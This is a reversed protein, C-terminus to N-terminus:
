AINLYAENKNYLIVLYVYLKEKFSAKNKLVKLKYM